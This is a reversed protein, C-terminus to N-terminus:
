EDRLANVPNSIAAKLSQYSVTIGAFVVSLCASLVFVSWNIEIRYAFSDLWNSMFYYGMPWAILNAILLIRVYEKSLLIVIRETNAGLVKRIGIEKTRREALYSALGFLGLCAICIAFSTFSIILKALRRDSEYAEKVSQETFKMEFPYTSIHEAWITAMQEKIQELRSMDVRAIIFDMYKDPGTYVAWPEIPHHISTMHFDKVVGIVKGWRNNGFGIEKGIAEQPNLGLATAGKENIVYYITSDLDSKLAFSEGAILEFGMTEVFAEDGNQGNFALNSQNSSGRVSVGYGSEVNSINNNSGTVGKVGAIQSFETKLVEYAKLTTRDSIKFYVLEEQQYGMEKEQIFNIQKAVTITGVVLLVSVIFQLTVLLRRFSNGGRQSISGKLVKTPSFASLYGAPYSGALLSIVAIMLLLGVWMAPDSILDFSLEIGMMDNFYPLSLETLVVGLIVSFFTILFTEGYFQAILQKRAAGMVKRIGVEKARKESKATSLNIYNICAIVLIFVSVIILSYMLNKPLKTAYDYELSTNFHMDAIPEADFGMRFGESEFYDAMEQAILENLKTLFTEVAAENAFKGFVPYNLPFWQDPNIWTSRSTPLLMDFSLVTNGPPDKIVGTVMRDVGGVHLTKNLIDTSNFYKFAGTETLVLSNKDVLATRPDGYLFEHQFVQFFASDASFFKTEINQTNGKVLIEPEDSQNILTLHQTEPIKQYAIELVRAPLIALDGRGEKSENFTSLRYIKESEPYFTEYSMADRVFLLILLCAMVGTALGIVNIMVYGKQRQLTRLTIKIYNHLM